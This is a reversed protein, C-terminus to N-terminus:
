SSAIKMRIVQLGQNILMVEEPSKEIIELIRGTQFLQIEKWHHTSKASYELVHTKGSTDTTLMIKRNQVKTFFIKEIAYDFAEQVAQFSKNKTKIVCVMKQTTPLILEALNNNDWDNYNITLIKGWPYYKWISKLANKLSRLVAIGGNKYVVVLEDSADNDLDVAVINDFPQWATPSKWILDLATESPKLVFLFGEKNQVVLLPTPNGAFRATTMKSVTSWIYKADNKTHWLQDQDRHYIYIFGPETTGGVIEPIQDNNLDKVLLTTFTVEPVELTQVKTWQTEAAYQYIEIKGNEIAAMNLQDDIRFIQKNPTTVKLNALPGTEMDLKIMVPASKVAGGSAKAPATSAIKPTAQAFTPILFLSLTVMCFVFKISLAKQYEKM